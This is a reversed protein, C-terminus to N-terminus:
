KGKELTKQKLIVGKPLKMGTQKSLHEAFSLLKRMKIGTDNIEPELSEKSSTLAEFTQLIRDDM